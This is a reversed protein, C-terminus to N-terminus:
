YLIDHPSESCFHLESQLRIIRMRSPTTTQSVSDYLSAQLRISNTKNSYRYDKIM